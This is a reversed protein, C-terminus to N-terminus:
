SIIYANWGIELLFKKDLLVVKRKKAENIAKKTFETSTVAVGIDADFNHKARDAEIVADIGEKAISNYRFQFVMKRGKHGTAIADCGYDWAIKDMAKIDPYIPKLLAVVDNVFRRGKAVTSNPNESKRYSKKIRPPLVNLQGRVEEWTINSDDKVMNAMHKVIRDRAPYIGESLGKVLLEYIKKQQYTTKGSFWDTCSLAIVEDMILKQLEPICDYFGDIRDYQKDSLGMKKSVYQRQTEHHYQINRYEDRYKEYLQLQEKSTMNMVREQKTYKFHYVLIISYYLSNQSNEINVLCIM